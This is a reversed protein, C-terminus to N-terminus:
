TGGGIVRPRITSKFERGDDGPKPEIRKPKSPIEKQNTVWSHLKGRWSEVPNGKSDVWGSATFYDFCARVRDPDYGQEAGFSSFLELSPIENGQSLTAACAAERKKRKTPRNPLDNPLYTPLANSKSQMQMANANEGGDEWRKKAADRRVKSVRDANDLMRDAEPSIGRTEMILATNLADYHAAKEEASMKMTAALHFAPNYQFWRMGFKPMDENHKSASKSNRPKPM